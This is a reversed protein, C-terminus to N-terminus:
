VLPLDSLTEWGGELTAAITGTRVNEIFVALVDDVGTASANLVAQYGLRHAAEGIEHTLFRDDDM